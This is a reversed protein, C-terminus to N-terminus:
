TVSLCVAQALIPLFFAKSLRQFAHYAIVRALPRPFANFYRLHATYAFSYLLLETMHFLIVARLWSFLCLVTEFYRFLYRPFFTVIGVHRLSGYFHYISNKNPTNFITDHVTNGIMFNPLFFILLRTLVAM